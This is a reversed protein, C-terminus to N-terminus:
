ERLGRLVIATVALPTFVTTGVAIGAALSVLSGLGLSTGVAVSAVAAVLAAPVAGLAQGAYVLRAVSGDSWGVANLIEFEPRRSAVNLRVSAVVFVLSCAASGILLGLQMPGLSAGLAAALFTPGASTTALALSIVSLAVTLGAVALGVVEMAARTSRAVTSRVALTMINSVPVSIRELGAVAVEGSEIRDPGSSRLAALAGIIASSLWIASLLLGGGLATISRGGIWWGAVALLAIAAAAVLAEAVIWGLIQRRSWGIARQIAIEQTRRALQIVQLGLAFVAAALLGLGLLTGDTQGFGREVRQAAGITTWDQTVWGLDGPPDSTVDYAPVYLDIAQPSSGAVIDVDLGLAAIQSAVAEVKDQSARDFGALGAVRVRIADIPNPGRLLRAAALDTIALPPSAILGAPSLTPTMARPNVPAGSPDAILTTDPPAYAGLPVRNLPNAPLDLKALDFTELPAFVFASDFASTNVGKGDIALPSSVFSRYAPFVGETFATTPGNPDRHYTIPADDPGVLGRTEIRFSPRSSGPRSPTSSYSPRESLRTELTGFNAIGLAGGLPSSGPWPLILDAPQFPRLEAGADLATHGISIVGGGALREATTLTENSTDGSPYTRLPSGVQSVDLTLKLGAYLNDSLVLPVIPRTKAAPTPYRPDRLTTIQTRAFDFEPPILDVNMNGVTLNDRDTIESFADLFTASSGLLAHEAIPDVAMIPIAIPPLSHNAPFDVIPNGSADVGYTMGIFDAAWHTNGSPDAPPPGILVRGTERQLLRDALGDSTTVTITVRYLTPRDPLATLQITPSSTAYRLYGLFSVPAALEVDAAARIQALQDLSIGGHGSYSLFNPEVLSNTRELNLRTGAPRVLIDYAGRWNADVQGTLRVHIADSLGSSFIALGGVVLVGVSALANRRLRVLAGPRGSSRM